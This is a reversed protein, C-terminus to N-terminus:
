LLETWLKEEMPIGTTGYKGDGDVMPALDPFRTQITEMLAEFVKTNGAGNLHLGDSLYKGREETDGELVKWTDIVAVRDGSSDEEAVKKVLDGYLRARENTRDPQEIEFARCLAQEDVPPPTLLLLPFNLRRGLSARLRALIFKLNTQYDDEPVHQPSSPVAADNAGWWVTVFLVGEDVKGFQKQAISLAHNTNYGSFGRNFVDARRQYASTLLSAWGVEGNEGYGQQTLSDGFLLIMPRFHFPMLQMTSRRSPRMPASDTSLMSSRGADRSAAPAELFDDETYTVTSITSARMGLRASSPPVDDFDDENLTIEEDELPTSM